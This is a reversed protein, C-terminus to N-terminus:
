KCGGALLSDAVAAIVMVAIGLLFGQVRPPWNFWNPLAWVDRM